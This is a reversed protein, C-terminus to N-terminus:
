RSGAEREKPVPEALERALAEAGPDDPVLALLNQAAQRARGPQGADRAITALALLPEREGPRSRHMAELVSLAESVRGAAQLAMAYVVTLHADEPALSAALRLEQEADQLRRERVRLLGIALHVDANKPALALAKELWEGAAGDRGESRELDALNLYAPVFWPGRRLATEYERRAAEDEGKQAHLAGLNVHAEPRDDNALQSARWEALADALPLQDSAALLTPPVAALARAATIRVARLPDRLLPAALAVGPQPGIAQAVEAAALRLLPEADGAAREVSPLSRITLWPTLERVATARAIPPQSSDDALAALREEADARGRRGADLAEAFHARPAPGDGRWRAITEAAWKPTRERHCSECANPTGLRVSLDPRPVRLSHDHRAHVVMYVRTPMHCSVCSAGASGVAHHHHSVTDYHAPQHCQGCTANGKERLEGSHPEHCNSCTVGAAYMRSQLFSGWEYMEDRIQGDSFYLDPELLSPLHTDLLPRGYSYPEAIVSRRSHCRGCAELEAHSPPEGRRRAIPADSDFVWAASQKAALAVVLGHGAGESPADAHSRETRDKAWGVHASGPGHCAECGVSVEAWTTEYRSEAPKWGKQLDTSHCEACQFNWAGAPGTWHLPDSPPIKERGHLDFWRQGGNAEARSDWAFGTAQMRGGPFPVLYQQLPDVGFTYAIEFDHVRGEAGETSFVFRGDHRFFRVNAGSDMLARTTFDGLVSADSAPQMARAHHSTQWRALQAPHCGGCSQSGVFTAPKPVPPPAPATKESSRSCATWVALAAVVLAWGRMERVNGWTAFSGFRLPDPLLRAGRSVFAVARVRAARPMALPPLPGHASLTSCAPEHCPLCLSITHAKSGVWLPAPRRLVPREKRASRSTLHGLSASFSGIFGNDEVTGGVPVICRAAERGADCFPNRREDLFCRLELWACAKEFNSNTCSAERQRKRCAAQANGAHIEGSAHHLPKKGLAATERHVNHMGVRRLQRELVRAEVGDKAHMDEMEDRAPTIHQSLNRANEMGVTYENMSRVVPGSVPCPKLTKSLSVGKLIRAYRVLLDLAERFLLAPAEYACRAAKRERAKQLRAPEDFLKYPPIPRPCPAKAIALDRLCRLTQTRRQGPAEPV